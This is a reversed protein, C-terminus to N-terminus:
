RRRRRKPPPYTVETLKDTLDAISALAERVRILEHRTIRYDASPGPETDGLLSAVSVGLADALRGLTTVTPNAGGREIEGIFKYSLGSREALQEQTLDRRARCTKVAAGLRARIDNL